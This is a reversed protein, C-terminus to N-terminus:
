DELMEQAASRVGPSSDTEVMTQLYHRVEELSIFNALGYVAGERVMPYSHKTLKLLIPIVQDPDNVQGAFEAAISLFGPELAESRILNLLVSHEKSALHKFMADCPSGWQSGNIYQKAVETLKSLDDVTQFGMYKPSQRLIDLPNPQFIDSFRMNIQSIAKEIITESNSKAYMPKTLNNNLLKKQFNTEYGHASILTNM